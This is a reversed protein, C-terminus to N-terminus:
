RFQNIEERYVFGAEALRDILEARELDHTCVLDDLSECQNRLETNVLGILLHPDMQRFGSLKM